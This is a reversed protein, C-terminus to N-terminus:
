ATAVVGTKNTQAGLTAVSGDFVGTILNYNSTGQEILPYLSSSGAAKQTTGIDFRSNKTNNVIVATSGTLRRDYDRVTRASLTVRNCDQVNAAYVTNAIIDAAFTCNDLGVLSVGTGDDATAYGLWMGSWHLLTALSSAGKKVELLQSCTDILGGVWTFWKLDKGNPSEGFYVGTGECGLVELGFVSTGTVSEGRWGYRKSGQIRGGYIGVANEPVNADGDKAYLGDYNALGGIGNLRVNIFETHFANQYALARRSAWVRVNQVTCNNTAGFDIGDANVNTYGPGEITFDRLALRYLPSASSTTEDSKTAKLNQTNKLTTAGDGDGQITINHCGTLDIARDTKAPDPSNLKLVGCGLQVKIAGGGYLTGKTKALALAARIAPADDDIGNAKAGFDRIHLTDAARDALVRIATTGTAQVPLPSGNSLLALAQESSTVAQNKALVAQDRAVYTEDRATLAQDRRLTATGAASASAIASASAQDAFGQTVASAAAIPELMFLNAGDCFVDAQRGVPVTVPTGGMTFTIPYGTRNDVHWSKQAPPVTVTPAASLGPGPTFVLVHNRAEDSVYNATTLTVNGSLPKILVGCIAQEHLVLGQNLKGGWSNLSEGTEQLEIRLNPSPTSPM